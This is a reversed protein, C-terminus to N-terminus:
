YSLIDDGLVGYTTNGIIFGDTIPELTVMTCLMRNPTIDWALGQVQLNKTITSGDPQINSIDVNQFYDIGLITDTPVAPDLLDVTMEDIRITTDSRTAV